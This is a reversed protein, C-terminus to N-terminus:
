RCPYPVISHMGGLYPVPIVVEFTIAPSSPGVSTALAIARNRVEPLPPLKGCLERPIRGQDVDDADGYEDGAQRDHLTVIDPAAAPRHDDRHKPPQDQEASQHPHQKRHLKGVDSSANNL